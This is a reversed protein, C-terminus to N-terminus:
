AFKEITEKLKLKKTYRQVEHAMIQLTTDNPDYSLQKKDNFMFSVGEKTKSSPPLCEATLELTSKMKPPIGSLITRCIKSSKNNLPNFKVVIKSLHSFVISSSM